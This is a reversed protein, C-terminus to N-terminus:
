SGVRYHPWNLQRHARVNKKSIKNIIDKDRQKFYSEEEVYSKKKFIQKPLTRVVENNIPEKKITEKIKSTKSIKNTDSLKTVKSLKAATQEVEKIIRSVSNRFM